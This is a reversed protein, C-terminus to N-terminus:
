LKYRLGEFLRAFNDKTNFLIDIKQNRPHTLMFIVRVKNDIASRILGYFAKPNDHDSIRVNYHSTIIEDYAEAIIGAKKRTNDDHLFEYNQIQFKTNIFDGHSAVILSQSGTKQRFRLLDICFLERAELFLSPIKESKKIRRKKIIKALEEYHYGTEYGYEDIIKILKKDTTCDRFYYSSSGNHGLVEQEIQLIKKTVMPSTDIDHRNVLIKGNYKDFEGCQIMKYFDYVSMIKYGNELAYQLTEKYKKLRSIKFYDEYLRNFFSM